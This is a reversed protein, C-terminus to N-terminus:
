KGRNMPVKFFIQQKTTTLKNQQVSVSDRPISRGLHLLLSQRSTYNDLRVNITDGNGPSLYGVAGGIFFQEKNSNIHRLISQTISTQGPSFEFSTKITDGGKRWEDFTQNKRDLEMILDEKVERSIRGSAVSDAFPSEGQKFSRIAKGTGNAFESLLILVTKEANNKFINLKEEESNAEFVTSDTVWIYTLIADSAYETIGETLKNKANEFLKKLSYIKKGLFSLNSNASTEARDKASELIRDESSSSGSLIVTDKTDIKNDKPPGIGIVDISEFDLRQGEELFKSETGEEDVLGAPSGRCYMYLNLGDVLGAPDAATWRGLWCAYYRAGYYYLGSEEDKEKGTYRYRKQSVEAVNKGARYSTEGYPYYEEYSITNANEDLELTVSEINNSLQYRQVPVPSNVAAGNNLTLTEVVAIRRKDDMIHLTERETDLNGNVRKRWIEFGGLYLREETINGKEVVKRVRQGSGDYSYYAETTGRAIHCLREMFDWEMSQLHPMSAMSGHANYAYNVAIQGVSTSDMRNSNAAYNYNRTWCNNNASHILALINGAEDYEWQRAYLRMASGDEPSVQAPNYGETEPETDANVSVHERGTAKVLRYLADYEFTQSPNAAQGNFFVSQRAEDTIETINGMQDYAYSLDQLKDAGNNRTTLLRTLRFTKEDYAYKTKAGNGYGIRERQGKPNYAINTVFDTEIGKLRAKVAKLLGGEDYAPMIEDDRPTSISAARNLADYITVMAFTQQLEYIGHSTQTAKGHM